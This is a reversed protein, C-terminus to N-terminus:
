TIKNSVVLVTAATLALPGLWSPVNHGSKPPPAPAAAPPATSPIATNHAILSNAVFTHTGEVEIDYVPEPPLSAIAAIPEFRIGTATANAVAIRM